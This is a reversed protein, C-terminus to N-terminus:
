RVEPLSPLECYHTHGEDSSHTYHEIQNQYPVAMMQQVFGDRRIRAFACPATPKSTKKIKKWKM